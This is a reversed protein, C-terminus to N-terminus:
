FYKDSFNKPAYLKTQKQVRFNKFYLTKKKVQYQNLYHKNSVHLLEKM